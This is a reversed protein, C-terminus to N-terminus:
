KSKKYEARFGDRLVAYRLLNRIFSQVKPNRWELLRSSDLHGLYIKDEKILEPARKQVYALLEKRPLAGDRGRTIAGNHTIEIINTDIDFECFKDLNLQLSHHRTEKNTISINLQTRGIRTGWHPDDKTKATGCISIGLVQDKGEYDQAIFLRSWTQYSGGGRNGFFTFGRFCDEIVGIKNLIDSSSIKKLLLLNLFNLYFEYNEKPSDDGIYGMNLFRNQLRKSKIDEFTYPKDKDVKVFKVKSKILEQYTPIKDVEKYRGNKFQYVVANVGNVLMIYEAGLIDRYRIAQELVMNCEIDIYSAKCEIVLLVEEQKDDRYVVIDARGRLGKKVHCMPEEVRIREIPIGLKKQLFIITKQRVEEEPTKQVLFYRIPDFYCKEDQKREKLKISNFISEIRKM